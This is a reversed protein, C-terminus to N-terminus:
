VQTVGFINIQPGGEIGDYSGDIDVQQFVLTNNSEALSFLSLANSV